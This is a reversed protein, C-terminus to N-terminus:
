SPRSSSRSRWPSSLWDTITKRDTNRRMQGYNSLWSNTREVPWRLGMPDKTPGTFQNGKRQKTVRADDIGQESLWNRTPGGDYGRDLWLTGVEALLGRGSVEELTPALLRVDNCNAPGVTWGIPIGVADTAISWKWGLKARDVPSKGTGEGGAPPKTCRGTSQWDSLDLGVIKDYGGVAEAAIADFVGAGIWEDRREPATTDSVV